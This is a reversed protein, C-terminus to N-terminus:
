DVRRLQRISTWYIRVVQVCLSTEIYPVNVPIPCHQGCGNKASVKNVPIMYTEQSCNVVSPSYAMHFAEYYYNIFFAYWRTKILLQNNRHLIQCPFRLFSIKPLKERLQDSCLPNGHHNVLKWEGDRRKAVM